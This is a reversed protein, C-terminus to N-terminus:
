RSTMTMAITPTTAITMTRINCRKPCPCHYSQNTTMWWKYWKRKRCICWGLLLIRQWGPCVVNRGGRVPKSDNDHVFYLRLISLRPSCVVVGARKQALHIYATYATYLVYVSSLLFSGEPMWLSNFSHCLPIIFSSRVYSSVMAMADPRQQHDSCNHRRHIHMTTTRSRSSTPSPGTRRNM